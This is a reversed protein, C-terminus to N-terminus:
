GNVSKSKIETELLCAFVNSMCKNVSLDFSIVRIVFLIEMADYYVDILDILVAGMAHSRTERKSVRRAM